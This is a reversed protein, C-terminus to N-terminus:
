KALGLQVGLGEDEAAVEVLGVVLSGALLVSTRGDLSGMRPWMWPGNRLACACPMSVRSVRM